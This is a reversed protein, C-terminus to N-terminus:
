YSAWLMQLCKGCMHRAASPPFPREPYGPAEGASGRQETLVRNRCAAACPVVDKDNKILGSLYGLPAIIYNRYLHLYLPARRLVCSGMLVADPLLRSRRQAKNEGLRKLISRSGLPGVQQTQLFGLRPDVRASKPTPLSVQGATDCLQLRVPSGDVQVVATSVSLSATLM